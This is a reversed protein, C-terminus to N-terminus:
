DALQWASGDVDLVSISCNGSPIGDYRILGNSDTQAHRESGNPLTVLCRVNRMPEGAEDEIAIEIWDLAAENQTAEDGQDDQTALNGSRRASYRPTQRRLIVTRLDDIRGLVGGIEPELRAVRALTSAASTPDVIEWGDQGALAPTAWAAVALYDTGAFSFRYQYRSM